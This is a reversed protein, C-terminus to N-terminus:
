AGYANRLLEETDADLTGNDALGANDGPSPTKRVGLAVEHRTYLDASMAPQARGDGESDPLRQAKPPPGTV